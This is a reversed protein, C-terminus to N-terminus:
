LKGILKLIETILQKPFYPKKLFGINGEAKLNQVEDPCDYGSIFLLALEPWRERCLVGIEMSSSGAIHLDLILVSFKEHELVALIEDISGVVATRFGYRELIEKTTQRLLEGEEAVLVPIGNGRLGSSSEDVESIEKGIDCSPLLIRIESGRWGKATSICGQLNKVIESVTGIEDIDIPTYEGGNVGIEKMRSYSNKIILCVCPLDHLKKCENSFRIDLAPDPINEISISINGSGHFNKCSNLVLTYLIQWLLSKEALIPPIDAKISLDLFINEPIFSRLSEAIEDIESGLDLPKIKHQTSDAISLLEDAITSAEEAAEIISHYKLKDEEGTSSRSDGLSAAGIIGALSNNLDHILGRIIKEFIFQSANYINPKYEIKKERKSQESETLDSAVVLHERFGDAIKLPDLSLRIEKEVGTCHIIKWELTSKNGNIIATNIIKRQDESFCTFSSFLDDTADLSTVDFLEEAMRNIRLVKGNEDLILLGTIGSAQVIEEFTDMGKRFATRTHQEQVQRQDSIKSEILKHDRKRRYNGLIILVIGLLVALSLTVASNMLYNSRYLGISKTLSDADLDVRVFGLYEEDIDSIIPYLGVVIKGYKESEIIGSSAPYGLLLANLIFHNIEEIVTGPPRFSTDSVTACDIVLIQALKESSFYLTYTHLLNMNESVRSFIDNFHLYRPLTIDETEIIERYEEFNEVLVAALTGAVLLARQSFSNEVEETIKDLNRFEIFLLIFVVLLITAYPLLIIFIQKFGSKKEAM